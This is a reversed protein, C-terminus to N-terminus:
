VVDVRFYLCVETKQKCFIIEVTRRLKMLKNEYLVDYLVLM